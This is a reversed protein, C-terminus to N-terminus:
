SYLPVYGVLAGAPTRVEVFQASLLTLGVKTVKVGFVNPAQVAAAGAAGTDGKM